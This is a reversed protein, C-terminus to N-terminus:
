YWQANNGNVKICIHKPMLYKFRGIKNFWIETHTLKLFKEKANKYHHIIRALPANIVKTNGKRQM